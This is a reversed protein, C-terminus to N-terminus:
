RARLADGIRPPLEPRVGAAYDGAFSAGTSSDFAAWIEAGLFLGVVRESADWRIEVAVDGLSVLGSTIRLAGLVKHGGPALPAFLYFYGTEGDHEFVAALDGSSRSSSEFRRHQPADM